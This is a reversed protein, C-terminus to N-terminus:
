GEVCATIFYKATSITSIITFLHGVLQPSAQQARLCLEPWRRYPYAGVELTVSSHRFCGLGPSPPQYLGRM